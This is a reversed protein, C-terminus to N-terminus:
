DIWQSEDWGKAKEDGASQRSTGPFIAHGKAPRKPHSSSSPNPRRNVSSGAQQVLVSEKAKTEPKPDTEANPIPTSPAHAFYAPNSLNASASGGDRGVEFSRHKATTKRLVNVALYARRRILNRARPIVRDQLSKFWQLVTRKGWGDQRNDLLFESWMAMRKASERRSREVLWQRAALIALVISILWILPWEFLQWFSRNGYFETRLYRELEAAKVEERQGQILGSWGASRATSSLHMPISFDSQNAPSDAVVDNEEVLQNLRDPAMKYLWQVRATAKPNGHAMTSSFYAESYYLEVPPVAWWLWTGHPVSAVCGGFLVVVFLLVPLATSL